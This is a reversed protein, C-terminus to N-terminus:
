PPNKKFWEDLRRMQEVPNHDYAGIIDSVIERAETTLGYEGGDVVLWGRNRLQVFTWAIEEKTALMHNLADAMGVFGELQMPSKQWYLAYTLWGESEAFPKLLVREDGALAAKLFPEAKEAEERYQQRAKEMHDVIPGQNM